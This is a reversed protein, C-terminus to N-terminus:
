PGPPWFGAEVPQDNAEWGGGLAAYLQVVALLRDRDTQALNLQAPFLQQEAELVEFYSALGGEYRLLALRVSEQLAEVQSAQETRVQELKQQAILANSVEALATIVTQEYRQKTAEWDAVAARYSETLQGGQFLPGLVSGSIGWITGKGKVINEIESSQGGYFTTMGIRPFFNAVTVGVTANAAAIQQEAQLVDPRRQLLDSPLGPPTKPPVAEQTMIEARPIPGPPRGLLTCILNEQVIIQQETAPILAAAQDRAALAREVSLLSDVGGKFRRTFLAVTDDFSQTTERAITLTLDLEQLGFYAQAVGSVLSLVVGRRVDDTAYLTAESAETARRVRGWVDIEWALNFSGLFVDITQNEPTVGTFVKQRGAGGQYGVQPFLPSRTVGVQHQASEVRAVATKLDYNNALAEEILDRLTEDHFVEWWPLTAFSQAEAPTLAARYNEPMTPHPPQFNPGVPCGTLLAALLPIGLILHGRRLLSTGRRLSFCFGISPRGGHVADQKQFSMDVVEYGMERPPTLAFGTARCGYSGAGSSNGL